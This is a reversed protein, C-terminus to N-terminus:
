SLLQESELFRLFQDIHRDWLSWEHDGPETHFTHDIGVATLHEHFRENGAFLGDETGCTLYLAPASGNREALRSALAFLDHESGEVTAVDGFVLRREHRFRRAAQEDEPEADFRAALDMVGSFSAAAAYREPYTLAHILAGYGGMSLGAIFTRQPDSSVHFTRRVIAPLEESVFTWYSPGFAMDRYFSRNVAPMVVALNYRRAYREISTYRLWASHDDSLGHLLYLVAPPEADEPAPVGIQGASDAPYVLEISVGVALAQSFCNMSIRSM